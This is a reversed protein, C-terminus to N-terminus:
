TNIKFTKTKQYLGQENENEDRMSQEFNGVLSSVNPVKWQKYKM